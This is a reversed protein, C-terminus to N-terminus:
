NNGTSGSAHPSVPAHANDEKPVDPTSSQGAAGDAPVAVPPLEKLMPLDAAAFEVSAARSLNFRGGRVYSVALSAAIVPHLVTLPVVYKKSKLISELVGHVPRSRPITGPVQEIAFEHLGMEPHHRSFYSLAKAVQKPTTIGSDATLSRRVSHPHYFNVISRAFDACNHFLLSFHSVNPAGNLKAILADDQAETTSFELAYVKREYATGILQQWNRGEISEPVLHERKYKERLATVTESDAQPPVDKVDDVAYFYPLVPIAIWDYGGVDYYRSIVVGNEGPECRRLKVTTEACVRSLYIAAHGTATFAGFKGFPEEVLLTAQGWAVHSALLLAAAPFVRPSTLKRCIAGIAFGM